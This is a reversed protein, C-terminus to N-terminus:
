GGTGTKVVDDATTREAAALDRQGRTALAIEIEVELRGHEVGFAGGQEGLDGILRQPVILEVIDTAQFHARNRQGTRNRLEGPELPMRDRGEEHALLRLLVARPEGDFTEGPVLGELAFPDHHDLVDGGGAARGHLGDLRQALDAGIDHQDQGHDVALFAGVVSERLGARREAREVVRRFEQLISREEGQETMGPSSGPMWTKRARPPCTSPRTMGPWSSAPVNHGSGMEKWWDGAWKSRM